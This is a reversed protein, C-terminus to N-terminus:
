HPQDIYTPLYAFTPYIFVCRAQRRIGFSTAGIQILKCSSSNSYKAFVSACSQRASRSPKSDAVLVVICVSVKDKTEQDYTYARALSEGTMFETTLINTTCLDKVVAPCRFDNDNRLYEAFQEGCEAERLYDCEDALEARMVRITSDLYLGRPLIGSASVLIKLNNLDSSISEKVGPFQIKLAVKMRPHTPHQASLSAAHVQGISAAAIPVKDFDEFNKMWDSGFERELVKELQWNPMYDAKNQLRSLATEMQPPLLHSDQISLFQGLKLAAGRMVSLKSVLRDVNAQSLFVSQGETRGGRLFETATGYTLGAALGGYHFLRGLRSSPVKTYRPTHASTDQTDPVQLTTGSLEKGLTEMEHTAQTEISSKDAEFPQTPESGSEPVSEPMPPVSTSSTSAEAERVEEAARSPESEERRRDYFETKRSVNGDNGVSRAYAQLQAVSEVGEKSPAVPLYIRQLTNLIKAYKSLM